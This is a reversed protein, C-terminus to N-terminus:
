TCFHGYGRGGLYSRSAEAGLQHPFLPVIEPIRVSGIEELSRIDRESLLAGSSRSGPEQIRTSTRIIVSTWKEDSLYSFGETCFHCHGCASQSLFLKSCVNDNTKSYHNTSHEITICTPEVFLYSTILNYYLQEGHLALFNDSATTLQQTTVSRAVRVPRPGLRGM